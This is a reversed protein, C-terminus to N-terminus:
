LTKRFGKVALFVIVVTLAALIGVRGAIVDMGAGKLIIARVVPIYHTAPVIQAFWQLPAPMNRVPFAFGSLLMTPLVTAVFSALFASQQTRAMCSFLLGLSLASAVFLTSVGFLLLLSGRVEVGFVLWGAAVVMVIDIASLAVYPLLKGVVIEVASVPSSALLEFSGRERERVVIGSTLVASMLMLIIAILGPVLFVRSELDPNYLVRVRADIAPRLLSEPLGMARTERLILTRGLSEIGTQLYTAATAAITSNAGDVLVQVEVPERAKLATELGRPIVFVAMAERREFLDETQEASELSGVNVFGDTTSIAEILRRSAPTHDHDVVAFTLVNLDFDVAFGYLLLLIVPFALAAILSRVDRVIHLSEKRAIAGLRRM